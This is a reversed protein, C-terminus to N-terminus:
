RSPMLVMLGLTAWFRPVGTSDKFNYTTSVSIKVPQQGLQAVKGLSVGVPVNVWEHAQWDLPSRSARAARRRATGGFRFQCRRRLPAFLLVLVSLTTCDAISRAMVKEQPPHSRNVGLPLAFRRM